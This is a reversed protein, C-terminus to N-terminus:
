GSWGERQALAAYILVAAATSVNLSGAAGGPMPIVLTQDCRSRLLPSLGKGESGIVLVLPRRYDAQYYPQEGDAEAGYLWFGEEKLKEATRSLNTVRAVSIREAAGAAVKRVAATVSASRRDPIILGDLGAAEATRMIAGLNQPDELHDLLLLIPDTSKKLSSSILQDLDAYRYPPVLAAVSQNGPIFGALEKFASNALRELPIKKEAALASIEAVIAGRSDAALFIRRPKSYKLASLVAQRGGIIEDETLKDKPHKRGAAM